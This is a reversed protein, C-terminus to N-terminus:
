GVENICTRLADIPLWLRLSCWDHMYVGTIDVEVDFHRFLLM